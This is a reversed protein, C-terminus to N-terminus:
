LGLLFPTVAKVEGDLYKGHHTKNVQKSLLVSRVLLSGAKQLKARSMM